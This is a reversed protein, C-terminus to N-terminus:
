TRDDSGGLDHGIAFGVPEGGAGGAVRADACVDAAHGGTDGASAQEPEIEITSPVRELKGSREAAELTRDHLHGLKQGGNGVRQRRFVGGLQHLQLVFRRGHAPGEDLAAHRGLEPAVPLVFNPSSRAGDPPRPRARGPADRGRGPRRRLQRALQLIGVHLRRDLRVEPLQLQTKAMWRRMSGAISVVSIASSIPARM